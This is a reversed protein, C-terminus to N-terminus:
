DSLQGILAQTPSTGSIISPYYEEIKKLYAFLEDYESDSIIPKADIYYLHNHDVICDIFQQYRSALEEAPIDEPNPTRKIFAQLKITTESLTM